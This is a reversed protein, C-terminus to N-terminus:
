WVRPVLRWPVRRAYSAYAAYRDHLLAEEVSSKHAWLLGLLATGILALPGAFLAYGVFFLLGASYIPHRVLRYPGSEVLEARRAPEPFPTLARGLEHAALYALLAAVFAVVAGAVALELEVADPWRPPLVGAGVTAGMLVFQGVVLWGGKEAFRSM